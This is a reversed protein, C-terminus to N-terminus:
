LISHAENTFQVYDYHYLCLLEDLLQQLEISFM